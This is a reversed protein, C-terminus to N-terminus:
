FSSKSNIRLQKNISSQNNTIAAVRSYHGTAVGEFGNKVAWEYFLGFKVERNCVVDPNPTRGAEYESYFYEVVKEKYQARFDLVEFKIGLKTAVRLADRKDEDTRCGPENYAEIFVGTVEYGQEVLLAAAVSSDVGGSMGVAIRKM